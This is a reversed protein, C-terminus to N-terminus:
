GIEEKFQKIETIRRVGDDCLTLQVVADVTEDILDEQPSMSVQQILAKLRLKVASPSNAHITALGGPHGTNWAELLDLAAGDRVEGVIIRDPRCRLADKIAMRATYSSNTTRSVFNSLGTTNLEETDEVIFLRDDEPISSLLTSALTTKGSGTEGSIIINRRNNILHRLLGAQEKTCTGIEVYHSLPFVLTSPRRMVLFPRNGAINIHIRFHVEGPWVADVSPKNEDIDNYTRAALLTGVAIISRDEIRLDTRETVSGDVHHLFIRGNPNREIDTISRDEFLPLLSSMHKSLVEIYREDTRTM